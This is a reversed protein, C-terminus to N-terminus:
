ADVKQCHEKVVDEDLKKFFIVATLDTELNQHLTNSQSCRTTREDKNSKCWFWYCTREADTELVWTVSTLIVITNRASATM